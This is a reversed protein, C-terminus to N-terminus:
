LHKAGHCSVLRPTLEHAQLSAVALLASVLGPRDMSITDGHWDTVTEVFGNLDYGTTVTGEPQILSTQEGAANYAYGFM